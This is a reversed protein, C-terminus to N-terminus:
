GLINKGKMVDPVPVGFTQIITPALDELAPKDDKLPANTLLVGSLFDPDMCHDGSWADTNDTVHEDPYGGLITDWSARYTDAYCVILDPMHKRSHSVDRFFQDPKIVRRIVQEGTQPDRVATLKAILEDRLRDANEPNVTGDPERGDMNLYLSNIGLGYAKTRKWDTNAFDTASTRDSRNKLGAYGNDLLWSNLNFQRRFSTFAHDSAIYILGDGGMHEMLHGVYDDIRRYLTPLHDGHAKALEPTYLPHKADITRWYMHSNMDLSSFYSYFFGDHFDNLQSEFISIDTNLVYLAHDRFQADTLVGASLATTEEAMGQTYFRGIKEVIEKSYSKPTSVPFAPDVPDINVPSVYLELYPRVQKLFFRCVAPVEALYPVLKFRVQVFDSWEGEKLLVDKLTGGKGDKISVRALPADPDREVTFDIGSSVNNKRFSNTPGELTCSAVGKIFTAEIIKSGHNMGKQWKPDNTYFSFVGYSGHVDPATLGCLTKAKTESPPYNVPARLAWSPVGATQLVDWLAPGQRLLTEKASSLPIRYEGWNLYRKPEDTHSTALEAERTDPDRTIFDYVGHGGPDLGSVFTAWAVPSQPPMTTKLKRFGGLGLLKKCNPMFGAAAYQHLLTPDMGDAGVVAVKPTPKSLGAKLFSPFGLTSGLGAGAAIKAFHRRTLPAKSFSSDPSSNM